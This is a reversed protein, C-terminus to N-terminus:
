RFADPDQVVSPIASFLGFPGDTHLRFALPCGLVNSLSITHRYSPHTDPPHISFCNWALSTNADPELLAAVAAAQLDVTLAPLPVPPAAAHPHFTGASLLLWCHM